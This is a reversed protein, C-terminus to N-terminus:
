AKVLAREEKGTNVENVIKLARYPLKDRAVLVAVVKSMCANISLDASLVIGIEQSTTVALFARHDSTEVLPTADGCLSYDVAVKRSRVLGNEELKQVVDQLKYSAGLRLCVEPEIVLRKEKKM